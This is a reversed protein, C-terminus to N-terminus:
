PERRADHRIHLIEVAEATVRYFIKYPYRVLPIVRVGPRQAVQRASRPWQSMQREVSSLRREFGQYAAPFNTAIFALIDDLDRLAEDSYVVKM